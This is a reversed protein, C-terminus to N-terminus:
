WSGVGVPGGDDERQRFAKGFARACSFLQEQLNQPSVVLEESLGVRGICVCLSLQCDPLSRGGGRSFDHETFIPLSTDSDRAVFHSVVM